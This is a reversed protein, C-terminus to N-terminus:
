NDRKSMDMPPPVNNFPVGSFCELPNYGWHLLSQLVVASVKGDKANQNQGNVLWRKFNQWRAIQWNDLKPIRRGNFYRCYWHFWGLPDEPTILGKMKWWDYDMGAKVGFCNSSWSNKGKSNEKAQTWTALDLETYDEATANGFYNRGFVGLKMMNAPTFQPKFGWAGEMATNPEVFVRSRAQEFTLYSM